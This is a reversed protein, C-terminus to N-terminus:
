KTENLLSIIVKDMENAYSQSSVGISVKQVSNEKLVITAPISNIQLYNLFKDTTDRYIPFFMDHKKAFANIKELNDSKSDINISLFIVREHNQYKAYVKKYDSLLQICPKCWTAWCEILVIKNRLSDLSITQGDLTQFSYVLEKGLIHETKPPKNGLSLYNNTFSPIFYSFLMCFTFFAIPFLKNAKNAWIKITFYALLCIVLYTIFVAILGLKFFISLLIVLIIISNLILIEYWVIKKFLSYQISLFFVNSLYALFYLYDFYEINGAQATLQSFFFGGVAYVLTSIPLFLHKLSSM